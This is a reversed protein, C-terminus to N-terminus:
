VWVCCLRLPGPITHLCPTAKPTTSSRSRPSSHLSSPILDTIAIYLRILIENLKTSTSKRKIKQNSAEEKETSSKYWKNGVQIYMMKFNRIDRGDLSGLLRPGAM